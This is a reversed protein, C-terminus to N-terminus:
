LENQDIQERYLEPWKETWCCGHKMNPIIRIVPKQQVPFKSQYSEAIERSVIFDKEGVLHLQAIQAVSQWADAPNLSDSLPTVRHKTTWAQHDLNGAVTVLQKVDSRRSAVLVAIAGGGSYGVLRLSKSGYLAKLTDIAESSSRVVEESFRGSTWDARSCSNQGDIVVYQCPRALYAVANNPHHLALELGTPQKPTPNSSPTSRTIWALGDGEIYITLLDQQQRERPLYSVLTFGSTPLNIKQWGAATTLSDAHQLRSDLTPATVCGSLFILLV